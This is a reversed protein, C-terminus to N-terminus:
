APSLAVQSRREPARPGVFCRPTSSRGSTSSGVLSFGGCSARSSAHDAGQDRTRSATARPRPYVPQRSRRHRKRRFRPRPHEHALSPGQSARALSARAKPNEGTGPRGVSRGVAGFDPCECREHCGGKRRPSGARWSSHWARLCHAKWERRGGRRRWRNEGGSAGREADGVVGAKPRPQAPRVECAPRVFGPSDHDDRQRAERVPAEAM